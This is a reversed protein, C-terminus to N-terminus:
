RTFCVSGRIDVSFTQNVSTLSGYAIKHLLLAVYNCHEVHECDNKGVCEVKKLVM